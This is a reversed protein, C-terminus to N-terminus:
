YETAEDFIKKLKKNRCSISFKGSEIKRRGARGMKKRLDEDEILISIKYILEKLVKKDVSKISKIFSSNNKYNWTPIFNDSFYQINESKKILFGNKYDEVMESNAWIDTTIIPLEYSMADLFALGPTSHAPFLFIDATKFEQELQNWPIIKDIIKLNNIKQCKSKLEPPIDSRVVLEINRHKKQLLRFAEIVEKGGKYEFEGSINSSGVFLLKISKKENYKKIFNKKPVALYVVEIKEEFHKCNLNLLVTKKGAETWCIIKRCYESAFMKEILNKYRKFHKLSYGTLQTVFELDVVWPEKRFVLHGTAYTLDTGKPPKKFRELYAKTLNVPIIEGLVKEQLSYVANVKSAVNTVKDWSSNLTVFKYGSPPHLIFEKYLSHMRGAVDLYVKKM